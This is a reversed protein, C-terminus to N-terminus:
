ALTIGAAPRKAAGAIWTPDFMCAAGSYGRHLTIILYNQGQPTPKGRSTKVTELFERTLAGAPRM